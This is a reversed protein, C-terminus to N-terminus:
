IQFLLVVKAGECDILLQGTLLDQRGSNSGSSHCDIGSGSCVYLNILIRM